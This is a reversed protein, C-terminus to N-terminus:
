EIEVYEDPDNVVEFGGCENCKSYYITEPKYYFWDEPDQSEDFKYKKSEDFSIGIPSFHAKLGLKQEEVVMNDSIKEGDEIKFGTTVNENPYNLYSLLREDKIDERKVKGHSVESAEDVDISVKKWLMKKVELEDVPGFSNHYFSLQHPLGIHTLIWTRQYYRVIRKRHHCKVRKLSYNTYNVFSCVSRVFDVPVVVSRLGPFWGIKCCDLDFMCFVDNPKDAGKKIIIQLLVEGFYTEEPGPGNMKVQILGDTHTFYFIIGCMTSKEKLVDEVRTIIEKSVELKNPGVLFLDIDICSYTKVAGENHRNAGFCRYTRSFGKENLYKLTDKSHQDWYRTKTLYRLAFGGCVMAVKGYKRNVPAIACNLIKNQIMDGIFESVIPKVYEDLTTRYLEKPLEFQTYVWSPPNFLEFTYDEREESNLYKLQYVQTSSKEMMEEYVRHILKSCRSFRLCTANDEIYSLILSVPGVFNSNFMPSSKQKCRKSM